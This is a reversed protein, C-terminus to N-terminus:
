WGACCHRNDFPLLPQARVLIYLDEPVCGCRSSRLHVPWSPPWRVRRCCATTVGVKRLKPFRYRCCHASTTVMEVCLSFRVRLEPFSAGYHWCTQSGEVCCQAACCQGDPLLVQCAHVAGACHIAAESFFACSKRRSGTVAIRSAPRSISSSRMQSSSCSMPPIAALNSVLNESQITEVHRTNRGAADANWAVPHKYVPCDVIPSHFGFVRKPLLQNM